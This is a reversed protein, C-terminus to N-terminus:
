CPTLLSIILVTIVEKFFLYMLASRLRFLVYDVQVCNVHMVYCNGIEYIIYTNSKIGITTIERNCSTMKQQEQQAIM